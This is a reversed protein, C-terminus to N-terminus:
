RKCNSNSQRREIKIQSHRKGSLRCCQAAQIESKSMNLTVTSLPRLRGSLHLGVFTGPAMSM